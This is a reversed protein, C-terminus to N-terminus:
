TSGCIQPKILNSGCIHPDFNEKCLDWWGLGLQRRHIQSFRKVNNEPLLNKLSTTKKQFFHPSPGFSANKIVKLGTSGQFTLM